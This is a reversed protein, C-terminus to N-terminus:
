SPDIGPICPNKLVCLDILTICWILLNFSFFWIIMEITASLAKSLNLVWKPYFGELFYAYLSSVEVYYLGYIVFGCCVDNKITFFLGNGRLDPVLCPHGHEGSKNLMTKSTRPVAILSYFSIFICIPLSTFSDSEASSM